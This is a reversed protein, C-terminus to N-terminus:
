FKNERINQYGASTDTYGGIFGASQNLSDSALAEYDGLWNHLSIIIDDQNVISPGGPSQIRINKWKNGATSFACTRGILFNRPDNSRDYYCVGIKGTKDTALAPHFEDTFPHAPTGDASSNNVKVPASWTAGADASSAFLIDSFQYSATASFLDPVPHDGDNWVVYLVGANKPGKGIALKPHEFTLIRGQLIQVIAAAEGFPPLSDFMGAYNIDSVKVPSGFSPPVLTGPLNAKAIDVARPLSPFAVVAGVDEWTVYVTSSAPDVAVESFEVVPGKGPATECTETVVAPSSWTAGGDNSWVLEIGNGFVGAGCRAGTFDDNTYTVFLQQPNAPNVAMWDGDFFHGVNGAPVGGNSASSVVLPTGFTQGGDSSSSVTVATETSTNYLSSFYFNSASTCTFVQDFGLTSSSDSTLTPFGKDTFSTGKDTSVSYGLLAVGATTPPITELVSGTDNFGIVVNKGCWATSSENETFGALRTISLDLPGSVAGKTLASLVQAQTKATALKAFGAKTTEWNRAFAFLSRAGGSVIANPGLRKETNRLAAFTKDLKAPQAAVVQASIVVALATLTLLRSLVITLTAKSLTM